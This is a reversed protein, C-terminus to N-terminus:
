EGRLPGREVEFVLTQGDRVVTLSVKSGVAGALAKHVDDSTLSSVLVGGIATIEDGAHVGAKAAGMDEPAERVYLRGNKNNKGFVAGVSGTWRSGCALLLLVLALAFPKPGIARRRPRSSGLTAWVTAKLHNRYSCKM